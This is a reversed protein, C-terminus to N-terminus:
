AWRKLVSPISCYAVLEFNFMHPGFLIPKKFAAPELPNQGGLKVLSKGVFVVDAIAYLQRLEGMTDVIIVESACPTDMEDLEAKLFVSCDARAFMQHISLARKPDRPVVVLVLDSFIRKLVTYVNLLIKEEGEHTSGALFVRIRPSIGMSVRLERIEEESLPSLKHDFKLNGTVIVKDEAGGIAVFRKADMETQVCIASISSLVSKMFFSVSRYNRYSSPSLRGNVLLIPAGHRQIEHLCNPWLDTEVLLFLLPDVRRVLARVSWVFDYPFFFIVDTEKALSKTAVEYGSQTSVSCVLPRDGYREKIAAVLNVSSLVEGVSLAHIWIPRKPFRPMDIRPCLRKLMTVHGQEIRLTRILFFPSVIVSAPLFLMNYLFIV